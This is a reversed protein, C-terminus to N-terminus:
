FIVGPNLIGNPDFISKVARMAQLQADNKVKSLYGRKLTGIGHEASISGGLEITLDIIADDIQESPCTSVVNLHINGDGLHGFIYARVSGDLAELRKKAREWFEEVQSLDFSVDYKDVKGLSSIAITHHERLAWLRKASSSDSAVAVDFELDSFLSSLDSELSSSGDFQFLLYFRAAFPANSSLARAVLVAGDYTFFEAASLTAFQRASQLTDLADSFTDVGVLVTVSSASDPILRLTACTVVGVTGEAGIAIRGVDIGTNDKPLRSSAAVLGFAPTVLDLSLVQDRFGGNRIFHIGGANTSIMGGVTASDRSALDVGFHFGTGELYRGLESLTVGAECTIRGLQSDFHSIRKLRSTTLIFDSRVPTAGGVLSTNGGQLHIPTKFRNALILILELQAPSSPRLLFCAKGQVKGTWDSNSSRIVDEDDILVEPITERLSEVFLRSSEYEM